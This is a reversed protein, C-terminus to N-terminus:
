LSLSQLLTPALPLLLAQFILCSRTRIRLSVPQPRHVTASLKLTPTSTIIPTRNTQFKPTRGPLRRDETKAVVGKKMPDNPDPIPDGKHPDKARVQNSIIEGHQNSSAPSALITAQLLFLGLIVKSIMQM